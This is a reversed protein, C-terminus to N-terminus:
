ITTVESISPLSSDDHLVFELKKENAFTTVLQQIVNIKADHM